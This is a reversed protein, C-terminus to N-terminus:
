QLVAEHLIMNITDLSYSQVTMHKKLECDRNPPLYLAWNYDLRDIGLRINPFCLQFDM